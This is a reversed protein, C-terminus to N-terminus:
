LLDLRGESRLREVLKKVSQDDSKRAVLVADETAVVILDEAGIVGVRLSTSYVISDSVDEM